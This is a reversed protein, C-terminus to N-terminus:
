VSLSELPLGIQCNQHVIAMNPKFFPSVKTVFSTVLLSNNNYRQLDLKYGEEQFLGLEEAVLIPAYFGAPVYAATIKLYNTKGIVHKDVQVESKNYSFCFLLIVIAIFLITISIKKM